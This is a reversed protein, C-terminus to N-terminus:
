TQLQLSIYIFREHLKVGKEVQKLEIAIDPLVRALHPIILIM